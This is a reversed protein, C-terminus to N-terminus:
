RNIWSNIELNNIPFITLHDSNDQVISQAVSPTLLVPMIQDNQNLLGAERMTKFVVQRQKYRTSQAVREVEPHWEAQHNFYIEYAEYTLTLDLRLFQERVITVAFEYVFRYRKCFALWLLQQQGVPNTEILLDIQGPTLQKLRSSIERFIRKSANSTRMQLLNNTLVEERVDAWNNLEVYLDAVMLSENSLLSATTFSMSFKKDDM